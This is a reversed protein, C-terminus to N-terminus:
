RPGGARAGRSLWAQAWMAAAMGVVFVLASLTGAGASVFAPGPCFGGLGWGVGFVAAGGVLRADWLKAGEEPLGCGGEPAAILGRAQRRRQWLVVPMHVAIAGAMVFMLSPDWHGFVDLFGTVKQPQTMGGLGLGLAFVFGAALAVWAQRM